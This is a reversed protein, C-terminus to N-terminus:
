RMNDAWEDELILQVGKLSKDPRRTPDFGSPRLGLSASRLRFSISEKRKGIQADALSFKANKAGQAVQRTTARLAFGSAPPELKEKPWVAALSL